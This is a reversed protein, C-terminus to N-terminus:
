AFTASRASLALDFPSRRVGKTSVHTGTRLDDKTAVSSNLHKVAALRAAVLSERRCGLLVSCEHDSYGECFSMVFAFRERAPLELLASIEAPLGLDAPGAHEEASDSAGATVPNDEAIVPAISRIANKIVARRAWSHAWEKFVQNGSACDDLGALFCEEAKEQDATLVLALLYLSQMDDRFIRCFDSKTTYLNARENSTQNMDHFSGEDGSM